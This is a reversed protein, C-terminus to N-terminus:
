QGLKQRLDNDGPHRQLGQQWIEKAKAAQGSKELMNGYYLYTQAQEPSVPMNQQQQVLIDFHALAEKDKGLISPWFTYSVAKTFRAQWHSPDLELTKDLVQDARLGLTSGKSSDLQVYALYADALQMQANPDNPNAKANQEFMAVLDDMKGATFARKYAEQNQWYNNTKQAQLATFTARVDLEKEAAKGAADTPGAQTKLYRQVAAAVADDSVTPLATREIPAAAAAQTQQQQLNQLASELRQVTARFEEASVSTPAPPPAAPALAATIGVAAGASLLVSVTIIAVPNMPELM